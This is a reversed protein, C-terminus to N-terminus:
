IPTTAVAKNDATEWNISLILAFFFYLPFNKFVQVWPYDAGIAYQGKNQNGINIQHTKDRELLRM